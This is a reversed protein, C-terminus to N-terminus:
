WLTSCMIKMFLKTLKLSLDVEHCKIYHPNYFCVCYLHPRGTRYLFYLLCIFHSLSCVHLLLPLIIILFYKSFMIDGNKDRYKIKKSLWESKGFPTHTMLKKIGPVINVKASTRLWNNIESPRMVFMIAKKLLSRAQGILM